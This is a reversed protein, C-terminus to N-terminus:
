APVRSELRSNPVSPRRRNTGNMTRWNEAFEEETRASVSMSSRAPEDTTVAIATLTPDIVGQAAQWGAGGRSGSVVILLGLGEGPDRDLVGLSTRDPEIQALVRLTTVAVEPGRLDIGGATVFRTTLGALAASHVLSAAATVGREFSASDIYSDPSADFVVSCRRVGEVTHEKVLLNESRASAKWDISRPEDGDVYDRLGHFEGPGLRKAQTLLHRGLMGQGLEPMDLLMTRPAVTVTDVDAVIRKIRAIGLPDSTESRLPGLQIIGRTTTPLQYGVTSQASRELPAVPLRAVHGPADSRRSVREVLEFSTSRVSGRHELRLDVRGADGAVLVSPHVWRSAVLQPRRLRVFALAVLVAAIFASGIIFLELVGFVRGVAIAVIGAILSVVGQRTLM